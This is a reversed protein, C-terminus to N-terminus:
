VQRSECHEAEHTVFVTNDVHAANKGLVAGAIHGSGGGGVLDLFVENRTLEGDATMTFTKLQAEEHLRAFVHTSHAPRPGKQVRVHHLVGGEAVEVELVTNTATGSELLTLEAGKEIRILHRILSASEGTQDYRIHVPRTKAGTVQLVVGESAAATNLISLPRAVKEQGATELAGFFDRFVTIDQALIEALTAMAVGEGAGDDSLDARHRGNVFRVVTADLGDFPTATGAPEGAEVVRLPATLPTPDTYKWYEDRKAPAGAELLRARARARVERAWGAEGEPMPLASLMAEAARRKQERVALRRDTTLAM